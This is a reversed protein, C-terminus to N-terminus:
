PEKRDAHPLASRWLVIIDTPPFRRGAASGLELVLEARKVVCSLLDADEIRQVDYALRARAMSLPCSRM